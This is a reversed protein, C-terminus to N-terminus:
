SLHEKEHLATRPGTRQGSSGLGGQYAAERKTAESVYLGPLNALTIKKSRGDEYVTAVLQSYRGRWRVFAM